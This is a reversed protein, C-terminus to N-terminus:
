TAAGLNVLMAGSPHPCIVQQELERRNKCLAQPKLSGLDTGQSRSSDVPFGPQLGPAPYSCLDQSRHSLTKERCRESLSVVLLGGMM